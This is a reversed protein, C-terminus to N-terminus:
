ESLDHYTGRLTVPTVDAVRAAEAQTVGACSDVAKAATYLCAAAV